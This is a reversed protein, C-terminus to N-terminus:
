GTVRRVWLGPEPEGSLPSGRPRKVLKPRGVEGVVGGCVMRLDELRLRGWSGLSTRKTILLELAREREREGDGEGEWEGLSPEGSKVRRGKWWFGRWRQFLYSTPSQSSLMLRPSCRAPKWSCSISPEWRGARVLSSKASSPTVRTPCRMFMSRASLCSSSLQGGGGPLRHAPLNSSTLPPLWWEEKARKKRWM